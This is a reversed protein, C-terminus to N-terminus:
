EKKYLFNIYKNILYKICQLNNIKNLSEIERNSFIEDLRKMLKENLPSLSEFIFSQKQKIFEEM